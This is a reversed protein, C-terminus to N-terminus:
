NTIIRMAKAPERYDYPSIKIGTEPTSAHVVSGGGMYITVHGYDGPEGYFLLDGPMISDLSVETGCYSQSTAGHPLSYGFHEYVSMTFGSCDAGDTLSSGGYVYPNGVFQTAFAVVEEGMSSYPVDSPAESETEEETEEETTTEEEFEGEEPEPTLEVTKIKEMEKLAIALNAQKVQRDAYMTDLKLRDQTMDYSVLVDGVKVTDGQKVSVESIVRQFDGPVKQENTLVIYGDMTNGGYEMYNGVYGAVPYVDVPNSNKAHKRYFYGILCISLVLVLIVIITIIISKKKM